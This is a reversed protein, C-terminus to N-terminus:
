KGKDSITTIRITNDPSLAASLVLTLSQRQRYYILGGKTSFVWHRDLQKVIDFSKPQLQSQTKQHLVRVGFSAMWVPQEVSDYM